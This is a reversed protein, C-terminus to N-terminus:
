IFDLIRKLPEVIDTDITPEERLVSLARARRTALFEQAPHDPRM